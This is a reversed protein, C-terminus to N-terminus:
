WLGLKMNQLGFYASNTSLKVILLTFYLLLYTSQFFFCNINKLQPERKEPDGEGNSEVVVKGFGVTLDVDM